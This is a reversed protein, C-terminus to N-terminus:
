KRFARWSRGIRKGANDGSGSRPDAAMAMRGGCPSPRRRNRLSVRAPARNKEPYAHYAFRFPRFRSIELGLEERLERVLAAEPSEGPEVKGGPFEWLGALHAGAPRRSLLVRGDRVLIGAAVLLPPAPAERLEIGRLPPPGRGGGSGLGGPAALRRAAPSRPLLDARSRSEAVAAANRRSGRRVPAPSRLTAFGGGGNLPACGSCIPCNRLDASWRLRRSRRTTLASKRASTAASCGAASARSSRKRSRPGSSSRGIPSSLAERRSCRAAPFGFDPMRRSVEHVLRLARRRSRRRSARRRDPDRLPSLLEGRRQSGDREQRDVRDRGRRCLREGRAARLRRVRPAEDGNRDGSEVGQRAVRMERPAHPPLGGRPRLAGDPDRRGGGSRGLLLAGGPRRGVPSGRAPGPPREPARADERSLGDLRAAGGFDM